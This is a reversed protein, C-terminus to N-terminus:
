ESFLPSQKAPKHQQKHVTCAMRLFHMKECAQKNCVSKDDKHVYDLTTNTQKKLILPVLRKAICYRAHIHVADCYQMTFIQRDALNNLHDDM